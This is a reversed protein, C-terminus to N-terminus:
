PWITAPTQLPRINQDLTGDETSPPSTAIHIIAKQSEITSALAVAAANSQTPTVKGGVTTRHLSGSNVRSASSRCAAIL